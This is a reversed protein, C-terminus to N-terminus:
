TKRLVLTGAIFDHLAQKKATFGAMIYGIGLPIFGTVIKSFFRGTARGFTLRRGEMDTVILGLAKKGLTAQWTSSEMWAFYLWEGGIILPFLLLLFFVFGTTAFLANPDPHDGAGAVASLAATLGTMLALVVILPLAVIGIVIADIVYAVFRLWFGAYPAMLAFPIAIPAGVAAYAAPAVPTSSPFQPPVAAVPAAVVAAAPVPTGCAPCFAAGEVLAAGCRSCFM